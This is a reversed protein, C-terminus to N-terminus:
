EKGNTCYQHNNQKNPYTDMEGLGGGLLKCISFSINQNWYGGKLKMKKTEGRLPYLHILMTLM